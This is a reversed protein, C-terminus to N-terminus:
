RSGHVQRRQQGPEASDAAIAHSRRPVPESVRFRCRRVTGFTEREGQPGRRRDNRRHSRAPRVRRGRTRPRRSRDEFPGLHRQDSGVSGRATEKAIRLADAAARAATVDQVAGFLRVCAGDAMQPTCIIRVWRHNGRATVVPLELDFSVGDDLSSRVARALTERAAPPYHELAGDLSLRTGAPLEYIGDVMESWSLAGSAADFEWGGVGALQSTTAFLTKQNALQLASNKRETIDTALVYFGVVADCDRVPVYERQTHYREGSASVMAYDFIQHEGRLAAEIHARNDEVFLAGYVESISKGLMEDVTLGLRAFHARNAFRCIQNADWYAIMAPVTDAMKQLRIESERARAEELVLREGALKRETIDARIAIYRDIHGDADLLPVITTDAWYLAGGKTRNCLEGRWIQGKALSQWLGLFTARPHVGSNILAHTSGILETRSYGSITCFKDNVSTIVGRPDTVAVIAHQDLAHKYSEFTALAAETRRIEAERQLRQWRDVARERLGQRIRSRRIGLEILLVIALAFAVTLTLSWYCLRRQQSVIDADLRRAFDWVWRDAASVYQDLAGELKAAETAPAAHGGEAGIVELARTISRHLSQLASFDGCLPSSPLCFPQLRLAVSSEEHSWDALRAAASVQPSDGTKVGLLSRHVSYLALFRQRGAANVLKAHDADLRLLARIQLAAGIVICTLVLLVLGYGLRIRLDPTFM